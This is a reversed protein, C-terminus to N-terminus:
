RLRVIRTTVARKGEALRAFYVGASVPSGGADRGDWEISHAGAAFPGDGLRRILRGSVDFVELRVRLPAGLAFTLRARDLFPIPSAALALAVDTQAVPPAVATVGAPGVTVVALGEWGPSSPLLSILSATGTSPNISWLSDSASLALLAGRVPDYDLGRAARTPGVITAAGTDRDIRILKGGSVSYIVGGNPEFGIDDMPYPTVQPFRTPVATRPDISWLQCTGGLQQNGYLRDRSIDYALGRVSLLNTAGVRSGRGTRPDFKWLDGNGYDIAYVREDATRYAVGFIFPSQPCTTSAPPLPEWLSPMTCNTGAPYELVMPNGDGVLYSTVGQDTLRIWHQALTRDNDGLYLDGSGPDIALGAFAHPRDADAVNQARWTFTDVMAGNAGLVVIGIHEVAVLLKGPNTPSSFPAYVIDDVIDKFLNVAFGAGKLSALPTGTRTFKFWANANPVLGAPGADVIYVTNSDVAIGRADELTDAGTGPVTLVRPITFVPTSTSLTTDWYAVVWQQNGADFSVNWFKRTVSDWAIGQGDPGASLLNGCADYLHGDSAFKKAAPDYALADFAHVGQVPVFRQGALAFVPGVPGTPAVTPEISADISTLDGSTTPDLDTVELDVTAGAALALDAGLTVTDRNSTTVISDRAIAVGGVLLRLDVKSRPLPAPGANMVLTARGGDTVSGDYLRMGLVFDMAGDGNVDGSAMSVGPLGAADVQNSEFLYGPTITGGPGGLFLQASGENSQGNSYGPAAAVFDLYGDGNADGVSALAAGLLANSAGAIDTPPFVPGDPAGRYLRVRCGPQGSGGPAGAIFDAYGDHDIDGIGAVALGLRAGTLPGQQSWWATTTVGSAYGLYLYLYGNEDAGGFQAGVLLDPYGDGNVDGANTVSTGFSTTAQTIVTPSTLLFSANGRYVYVKAADSVGVVLDAKGDSNFDGMACSQGFSGAIGAVVSNAFQPLGSTGRYLSVTGGGRGPQAVAIDGYGDGDFDGIAVAFGSLANAFDSEVTWAPSAIWGSPGGLYLLVRGENTQGNSWNSQGVVVDAFGDGNVDGVAVSTGFHAGAQTGNISLPGPPTSFYGNESLFSARVHWNGASPATWRLVTAAGGSGTRASLHGYLYTHGPEYAGNCALGLSAGNAASWRSLGNALTTKTSFPQFSAGPSAAWGYSWSGTPNNSASFQFAADDAQASRGVLLAATLAVVVRRM